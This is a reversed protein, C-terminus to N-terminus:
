MFDFLYKRINFGVMKCIVQICDFDVNCKFKQSDLNAADGAATLLQMRVLSSLQSMINACLGVREDLISFFIALLRDFTFQKPGLQTNLLESVRGTRAINAATKRKRGHDKAFLRKDEKAPNYSALYAAILLHRAYFPLPPAALSPKNFEESTRMYVRELGARLAPSARHWLKSADKASIEGSLVPECYRPFHRRAQHKLECLDRCSRYFVSLLVNLYNHYFSPDAVRADLGVNAGMTLVKLVEDRSYQRFHLTKPASTHLKQTLKSFDLESILVVSVDLGSLERLRLFGPLLNADMDRLREAKDLVIVARLEGAGLRLVFDMLNDCRPTPIQLQELVSEFLVKPTNCRILDIYAHRTQFSRLAARILSTKGVSTVGFVYLADLMPEDIRGYLQYLKEIELERCPFRRQLESMEQKM